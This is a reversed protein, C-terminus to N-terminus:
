IQWWLVNYINRNHFIFYHCKSITLKCFYGSKEIKDLNETLTEQKTILAHPENGCKWGNGDDDDRAIIRQNRKSSRFFDLLNDSKNNVGNRENWGM